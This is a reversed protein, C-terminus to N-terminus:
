ALEGKFAKQLLSNFLSESKELSKQAIAKQEEILTVREAFQNQLDLPPNISKLELFASKSINKMSGSTGSSIKSIENMFSKHGVNYSLWLVSHALDTKETQWLRDPLYISPFDNFIYASKGVLEPTNMRSIIISDKKPNLRARQIEDKRITKVQKPDFIGSYVCSTKLIFLHGNEYSVDESNVSVGTNLKNIFDKLKVMEWGKPNSVPDGFMDLFLAQTLEDYKAILAKDNQRLADAADLINAIKQQQPLPPLPIKLKRIQALSLNAITATVMGKFFQEQANPSAIFHCLYEKNIKSDGLRIIAVAQNCNLQININKVIATRGITGAITLLVDGDFIQSRKLENNHTEDDIYLIDEDILVNSNIVNQARLFGVGITTFSKGLTTPTTGKTIIKCENGLEILEIM